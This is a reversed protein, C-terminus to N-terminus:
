ERISCVYEWVQDEDDYLPTIRSCHESEVTNAIAKAREFDDEITNIEELTRADLQSLYFQSDDLDIDYIAGFCHDEKPKILLNAFLYRRGGAYCWMQYDEVETKKWTFLEETGSM